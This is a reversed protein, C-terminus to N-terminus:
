FQLKLSLNYVNRTFDDSDVGQDRGEEKQVTYQYGGNLWVNRNIKYTMSLGTNMSEITRDIGEYAREQYGISPDIFFNPFLEYKAGLTLTTRIASSAGSQITEEATRKGTFTFAALTSPQWVLNIGFALDSLDEFDGSEYTRNLYGATFSAQTIDSFNLIAGAGAELNKASRDRGSASTRDYSIDTFDSYLFPSLFTDESAGLSAYLNYEKRDREDGGSDGPPNSDTGFTYDRLNVLMKAAFRAGRHVLGASATWLDFITPEVGARGEPFDRQYHDRQYSLALPVNTQGGIDLRASIGAFYDEYDEGPNKHYRGQEASASLSLAHRHFDSKIGLRPSLTRIFDEQANNDTAYVNDTFSLGTDLAASFVFDGLRVGIPDYAPNTRFLVSLVDNGPNLASQAWSLVPAISIAAALIAFRIVTRGRGQGRTPVADSSKINEYDM